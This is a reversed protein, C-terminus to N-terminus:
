FDTVNEGVGAEEDRDIEKIYFPKATAFADMINLVIAPFPIKEIWDPLFTGAPYKEKVIGAEQVGQAQLGKRRDEDALHLALNYAAEQQAIKLNALQTATPSSPISWRKDHILRTYANNLVKNKLDDTSLADWHTTVLRNEEFYTNAEALTSWGNEPVAM